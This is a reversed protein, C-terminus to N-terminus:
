LWKKPSFDFELVLTREHFPVPVGCWSSKSTQDDTHHFASASQLKSTQAPRGKPENGRHHKLHPRTQLGFFCIYSYSGRISCFCFSTSDFLQLTWDTFHVYEHYESDGSSDLEHGCRKNWSHRERNECFAEKEASCVCYFSKM